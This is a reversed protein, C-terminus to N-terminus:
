YGVRSRKINTVCYEKASIDSRSPEGAKETSEGTLKETNAALQNIEAYLRKHQAFLEDSEWVSAVWTREVTFDQPTLTKMKVKVLYYQSDSDGKNTVQKTDEVKWEIIQEDLRSTNPHDAICKNLKIQEIDGDKQAQLYRETAEIAPPTKECGAFLVTGCSIGLFLARSFLNNM